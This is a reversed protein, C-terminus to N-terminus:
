ILIHAYVYLESLHEDYKELANSLFRGFALRELTCLSRCSKGIFYFFLMNFLLTILTRFYFRGSPAANTRKGTVVVDDKRLGLDELTISEESSISKNDPDSM